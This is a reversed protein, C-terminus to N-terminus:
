NKFHEESPVKDKLWDYVFVRSQEKFLEMLLEAKSDKAERPHEPDDADVPGSHTGAYGPYLYGPVGDRQNVVLSTLKPLKHTDCYAEVKGLIPAVIHKPVGTLSELLQYSLIQQNRAAFVLVSWIQVARQEYTM